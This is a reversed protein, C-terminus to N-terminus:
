YSSSQKPVCQLHCQYVFFSKKVEERSVVAWTCACSTSYRKHQASVGLFMRLPVGASWHSFLFNILQCHVNLAICSTKCGILAAGWYDVFACGATISVLASIIGNAVRNANVSATRYRVQTIACTNTLIWFNHKMMCRQAHM